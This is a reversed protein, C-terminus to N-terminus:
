RGRVAEVFTVLAERDMRVAFGGEVPVIESKALTEAFCFCGSLADRVLQPHGCTSCPTALEAKTLRVSAESKRAARENIRADVSTGAQVQGKPSIVRRGEDYAQMIPAAQRRQEKYREASVETKTGPIRRPTRDRANDEYANQIRGVGARRHLLSETSYARGEDDWSGQPGLSKDSSSPQGITQQRERLTQGVPTQLAHGAEHAVSGVNPSYIVERQDKGVGFRDQNGPRARLGLSRKLYSKIRADKTEQPINRTQERVNKSRKELDESKMAPPKPAAPAKVGPPKPAAPATVKLGNGPPKPPTPATPPTPPRAAAAPGPRDIGGAAGAAGPAKPAAKALGALVFKRSWEAKALVDLNKGLRAMVAGRPVRQLGGGALATLLAALGPAGHGVHDAGEWAEGKALVVLAEGPSGPAPGCYGQAVALQAWALAARPAVAGALAPRGAVARDFAAAGEAGLTDLLLRSAM